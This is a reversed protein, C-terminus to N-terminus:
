LKAAQAAARDVKLCRDAVVLIGQQALREEVEANRIGSQLWVAKPHKALIDDMHQALDAPKRFVDLIDISGPVDEVRRFVPQGLIHTAEPFFVPVPIIEVGDAQLYQPVFFAPQEAKAETKIGLVAVRKASGALKIAQLPDTLLNKRWDSSSM